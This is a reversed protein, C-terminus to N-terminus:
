KVLKKISVAGRLDGIKYDIAKDNPYRGALVKRVNDNMTKSSGHCNLCEPQILIPKLFRLYTFEGENVIEILETKDTLKKNQMMNQFNNLAQLEYKDPYNNKNRNKISVRKVFLGQQLGFENTLVQATDSCVNLASVVGKKQMQNILITKLKGMFDKAASHMEKKQQETVKIEKSSCQIFFLIFAMALINRYKM